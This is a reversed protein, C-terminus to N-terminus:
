PVSSILSQAIQSLPEDWSGWRSQRFLRMTPYWPSDSRDRMWRWDPVFPLLVWIPKGLAGALHAISTDVSIVLDLECILGATDTFDHLEASHDILTMGAPPSLAESAASGKQLTHFTIGPIKGLRQFDALKMSRNQDNSHTPRGAWALGVNLATNTLPKKWKEAFLYPVTAPISQLTTTMVLRLSMLPCHLDFPPLPQGAPIIKEVGTVQRFLQVLEPQCELIVKGGHAAILPVYRIFHIADGFGQEAHILITRGNLPEGNWRPQSLPIPRIRPNAKWRHEHESWGREFDGQTLLIQAFNCHAQELDPELEIARECAIIAQKRQGLNCLVVGLNIHAKAYNPNLEIARRLSISAEQLLGSDAQAVGLNCHPEALNPQLQISKDFAAIAQDFRGAQKLATGLNNYAAAYKPNLEIVHLCTTIADDVQGNDCLADGLNNLAEVYEPKLKIARQYSHIAQELKGTEKLAVGLNNHAEAYHPQLDIAKGLSEIAEQFQRSNKLAVGLNNYAVASNSNLSISKRHATIAGASDGTDALAIGLNSYSDADNPNLEIARRYAAIAEQLKGLDSLANGLNNYTHGVDPELEIARNYSDIAAQFHGAERFVNGLNNHFLAVTPAIAIAQRILKIADNSRGTQGSLIGLLHLTIAHNPSDNLVQRYIAEARPFDGAQHHQVAVAIAQDISEPSMSSNVITLELM